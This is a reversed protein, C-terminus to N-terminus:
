VSPNVRSAIVSLAVKIEPWVLWHPNLTQAGHKTYFRRAPTNAPDVDVCIRRAKQKIFWKALKRLLEAAVGTGRQEPIVNIWQLEGDCHYRRTLHGAIYGALEDGALAVYCIRPPLAHRPHHEKALYSAIRLKWAEESPPNAARLRAMAPVDSQRAIRYRMCPM